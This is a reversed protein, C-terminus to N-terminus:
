VGILQRAADLADPLGDPHSGGGQAFTPRGGGGGRIHSSIGRLIEVANFKESASSNETTAVMLKGGGERSGLIALTPKSSDLTLEKLMKTMTKLDGDVEMIVVRVGDVEAIDDGGGSTRLRVIEAELSEIKKRQEKWENFMRSAKAPLEEIPVQFVDAASRLMEEQNRAYRMAADGAVIHLREVGDQVANSRVIRIQGIRGPEDHHTGGCAQIDHDAIRLIRIDSGKPAGGQYLDFGYKRDADKRDLTMKETRSVNQIVENALSEIEDLDQRTLRKHHTIDLRASDVSKNAGAQYIHPGLLRRAAGGVIHVATHHDMLQRRRSWDLEGHVMDGVEFSGTSLHLVLDGVKRTDLISHSASDCRLNGYDGEQGGGEPYFCTRDLVIGHTAGEPIDGGNLELCALVSAEFNQQSVDEYYLPVTAPLVPINEVLPKSAVAKAAAKAMAAHREAMEANFGTRLTLNKWGMDNAINMVLDPAIGHSDNITFLIEDPIELANQPIDKIATKVVQNGKRMMEDYREEEGRLITILGDQTQKMRDTSYNVELHHIALDSLSVDLGLEDRMRLVRRAIMRALYGAKANSPVLGDGLMNSLAHMHDPIAYIRSLPETISSFLEADIPHGRESLRSLFVEKMRDGDSGAEINMIGFLRSMEGLLSDLEDKKMEFRDASFGAMDKLWAVSEPYIAEYITPTGAAAWCFRELGYGTDIIQLPMESYKVGKIEVDGDDSEALNMFVLTALELGGVIVEVAPGANGGGSWPNEVYTVESPDIGFTGCLLDHCHKVCEEMWYFMRGEDPRNFVHHAMMEFTTLHRGSRGVADVDNLRICPQSIALPNAPPEVEGSTVHPQFDAISAITLHIDDRWRALIPYPDIRTHDRDELFSIFAERMSDKLERGRQEFGSIIPAGIFTYEDEETDGCTERQPDCTWFWLDTVRCQRRSYGNDHFVKLDIPPLGMIM